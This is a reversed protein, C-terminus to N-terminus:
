FFGSFKKADTYADSGRRPLGSVEDAKIEFHLKSIFVDM